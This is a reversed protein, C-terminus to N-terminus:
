QCTIGDKVPFREVLETIDCEVDKNKYLKHKAKKIIYDAYIAYERCIRNKYTKVGEGLVNAMFAGIYYIENVGYIGKQVCATRFKIYDVLRESQFLYFIIDLDYISMAVIPIDKNDQVVQKLYGLTVIGPFADLTICINYWTLREADSFHKLTYYSSAEKLCAISTKGQEFADVIAKKCDEEITELNGKYSLDTLRKSKVQFVVGIDQFVFMVDIDTIQNSSKTRRIEVHRYSTNRFRRALIDFVINEAMEGRITGLKKGLGNRELLGFYPTENMAIALTNENVVFFGRNNPLEIIPTRKFPNIDVINTVQNALKNGLKCSLKGIVNQEAISFNRKIVNPKISFANVPSMYQNNKRKDKLRRSIQSEITEKIKRLTSQLVSIDFQFQENLIQKIHVNNYKEQAFKVFQWDYGLDGEYFFTEVFQHSLNSDNAYENHLKDMLVYVELMVKDDIDISWNKDVVVNTLWMGALFDIENSILRNANSEQEHVLQKDIGITEKFAIYGLIRGFSYYSTIEKLRELTEIM